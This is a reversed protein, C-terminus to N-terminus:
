FSIKSTVMQVLLKVHLTTLLLNCTITRKATLVYPIRQGMASNVNQTVRSAHGIRIKNMGIQVVIMSVNAQIHVATKLALVLVHLM